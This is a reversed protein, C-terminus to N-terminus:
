SLSVVAKMISLPWLTVHVGGIADQTSLIIRKGLPVKTAPASVLITSAPPYVIYCCPEDIWTGQSVSAAMWFLDRLPPCLAKKINFTGQLM